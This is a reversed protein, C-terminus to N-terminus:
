ERARQTQTAFHRVIETEDTGTWLPSFLCDRGGQEMSMSHTLVCPSHESHEVPTQSEHQQSLQFEIDYHSSPRFLPYRGIHRVIDHWESWNSESDVEEGDVSGIRRGGECTTVVPLM